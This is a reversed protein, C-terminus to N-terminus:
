SGGQRVQWMSTHLCQSFTRYRSTARRPLRHASHGTAPSDLHFIGQTQSNSLDSDPTPHPPPPQARVYWQFVPSGALLTYIYAHVFLQLRDVVGGLIPYPEIQVTPSSTRDEKAGEIRQVDTIARSLRSATGAIFTQLLLLASRSLPLPSVHLPTSAFRMYPVTLLCSSLPGYDLVHDHDHYACDCSCLVCTTM